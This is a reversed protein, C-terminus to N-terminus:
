FKMKQNMVADYRAVTGVGAKQAIQSDTWTESRTKSNNNLDCELQLSVEKTNKGGKSNGELKKKENEIAIEEAVM